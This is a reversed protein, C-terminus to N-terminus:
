KGDKTEPQKRNNWQHGCERCEDWMRFEGIAEATRTSRCDPCPGPMPAPAPKTPPTPVVILNWSHAPFHCCDFSDSKRQLVYEKPPQGVSPEGSLRRVEEALLRLALADTSEGVITDAHKLACAIAQTSPELPIGASPQLGESGIGRDLMPLRSTRSDFGTVPEPALRSGAVFAMRMLRAEQDDCGYGEDRYWNVFAILAAATRKAEETPPDNSGKTTLSPDNM